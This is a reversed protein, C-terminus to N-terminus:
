ALFVSLQELVTTNLLVHQGLLYYATVSPQPIPALKRRLNGQLNENWRSSRM